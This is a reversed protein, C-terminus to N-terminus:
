QDKTTDAPLPNTNYVGYCSLTCLDDGENLGFDAAGGDGFDMGDYDTAVCDLLAFAEDSLQEIQQDPAASTICGDAEAKDSIPPNNMLDKEEMCTRVSSWESACTGNAACAAREACCFTAMCAECQDAAASSCMFNPDGTPDPTMMNSADVPDEPEVPDKAADMKPATGADMPDRSEADKPEDGPDLIRGDGDEDSVDTTITCAAMTFFVLGLGLLTTWSKM